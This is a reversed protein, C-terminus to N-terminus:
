NTRSSFLSTCPREAGESIGMKELLPMRIKIDEYRERDGGFLVGIEPESVEGPLCAYIRDQLFVIFGINGSPRKTHSIIKEFLRRLRSCKPLNKSSIFWTHCRSLTRQTNVYSLLSNSLDISDYYDPICLQTGVVFFNMNALTLTFVVLISLEIM